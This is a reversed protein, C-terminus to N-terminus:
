PAAEDVGASPQGKQQEKSRELRGTAPNQV